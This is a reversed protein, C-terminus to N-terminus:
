QREDPKKEPTQLFLNITSQGFAKLSTSSALSGPLETNFDPARPTKEDKGM